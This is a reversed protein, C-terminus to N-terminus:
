SAACQEIHMCLSIIADEFTPGEGKFEGMSDVVVHLGWKESVKRKAVKLKLKTVRM